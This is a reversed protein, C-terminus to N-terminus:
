SLDMQRRPLVLKINKDLTISINYYVVDSIRIGLMSDLYEISSPRQFMM